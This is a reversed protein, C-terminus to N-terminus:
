QLLRKFQYFFRQLLRLDETIIRTEGSMFPQFALEENYSSRLQKPLRILVRYRDENPLPSMEQVIGSITGFEAEPYNDLSINALQGEKVKGAGDIPLEGKAVLIGSEPFLAFLPGSDIYHENELFSVYALRGAVPAIFLYKERWTVVTATLESIAYSVATTLERKKITQEIRLEMIAKQLVGIQMDNSIISFEISKASRRQGLLVSKSHRFEFAPISQQTYLLPDAPFSQSTLVTEQEQLDLQAHLNVNLARYSGIQRELHSIRREYLQTSEFALLGDVARRVNNVNDEIEGANVLQSLDTGFQRLNEDVQYQAVIRQLQHVVEPSTNNQIYGILDGERLKEDEQRLLKIKGRTPSVIFVPSPDTTIEVSAVVVDPYKIFWCASLLGVFVFFILLIGSQLMRSPSKSIIDQVEESRTQLLDNRDM